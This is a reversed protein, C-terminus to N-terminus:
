CLGNEKYPLIVLLKIAYFIMLSNISWCWLSGFSGSNSYSYLTIILLIITYTLGLYHKNIFLSFFLFFLWFVFLIQRYGTLNFWNWKLHGNKSVTTEFKKTFVQNFFYLVTPVVYIFLMKNRLNYDNLLMLSAVPQLLLLLTGLISFLSNLDKNNLNRWIFFEILQMTFFSMLFLYAYINDLEKIKYPSYKNNYIILLLVFGSFIFTNMSVYQNWCM